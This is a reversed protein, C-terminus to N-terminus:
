NCLTGSCYLESGDMSIFKVGTSGAEDIQLVAFGNGAYGFLHEPNIVFRRPIRGGGGSVYTDVSCEDLGIHELVHSHGAFYYDAEDCVTETFMEIGTWKEGAHGNEYTVIPRHGVVVSLKDQTLSLENQLWADQEQDYDETNIILFSVNDFDVRYYESPMHWKDTTDRNGYQIYCDRCGLWDHNGYAINFQMEIDSYPLVFMEQFKPDNVSEVGEDYIVDGAIFGEICGNQYCYEEIAQAVEYQNESEGTGSDGFIIYSKVEQDEQEIPTTDQAADDDQDTTSNDSSQYNIIEITLFISLPLFAVIGILVVIWRRLKKDM